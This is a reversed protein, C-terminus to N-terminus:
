GGGCHRCATSLMKPWGGSGDRPYRRTTWGFGLPAGGLKSVRSRAEHANPWVEVDAGNLTVAYMTAYSVRPSGDSNNCCAM